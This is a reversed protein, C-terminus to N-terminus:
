ELYKLTKIPERIISHKLRLNQCLVFSFQTTIGQRILKALFIPLNKPKSTEVYVFFNPMSRPRSGILSGVFIPLEYGSQSGISEKEIVGTM